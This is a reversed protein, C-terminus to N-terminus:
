CICQLMGCYPCGWAHTGRQFDFNEVNYTEKAYKGQFTALDENYRRARYRDEAVTSTQMIKMPQDGSPMVITTHTARKKTDQRGGVQPFTCTCQGRKCDM